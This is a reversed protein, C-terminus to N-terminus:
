FDVKELDALAAAAQTTLVLVEAVAVMLHEMSLSVEAAVVLDVMLVLLIGDVLNHVVVLVMILHKDVLKNIVVEVEV